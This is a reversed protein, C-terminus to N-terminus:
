CSMNTGKGIDSQIWNFSILKVPDECRPDGGAEKKVFFRITEQQKGHRM